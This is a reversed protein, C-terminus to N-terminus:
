VESGSTTPVESSDAYLNAPLCVGALNTIYKVESSIKGTESSFYGIKYLEYDMPNQKFRNQEVPGYKAASHFQRIAIEDNQALFPPEYGVKLDKISYVNTIM